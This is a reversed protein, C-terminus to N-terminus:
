ASAKSLGSGTRSRDYRSSNHLMDQQQSEDHRIGELIYSESWGHGGIGPGIWM